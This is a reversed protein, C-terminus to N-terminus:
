SILNNLTFTNSANEDKYGQKLALQETKLSKLLVIVCLSLLILPSKIANQHLSPTKEVPCAYTRACFFGASRPTRAAIM